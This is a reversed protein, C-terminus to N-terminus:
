QPLAVRELRGFGRQAVARLFEAQLRTMPTTESPLAAEIRTSSFNPMRKSRMYGICGPRARPAATRGCRGTEAARSRRRRHGQRDERRADVRLEVPREFRLEGDVVCTACIHVKSRSTRAGAGAATTRRRSTSAAACARAMPSSSTAMARTSRAASKPATRARHRRLGHLRRRRRAVRKASSRRRRQGDLGRAHHDVGEGIDCSLRQGHEVNGLKADNEIVIEGNVTKADNPPRAAAWTCARRQRHEAHRLNRRGRSRGLRQGVHHQTRRERVSVPAPRGLRRIGLLAVAVLTAFKM